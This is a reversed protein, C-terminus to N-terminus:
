ILEVISPDHELTFAELAGGDYFAGNGLSTAHLMNIDLTFTENRKLPSERAPLDGEGEPTAPEVSFSSIQHNFVFLKMLVQNGIAKKISPLPKWRLTNVALENPLFDLPKIIQLFEFKPRPPRYLSMM